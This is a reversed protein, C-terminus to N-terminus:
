DEPESTDSTPAATEANAPPTLGADWRAHIWARVGGQFWFYGIVVVSAGLGSVGFLVGGKLLSDVALGIIALSGALGAIEYLVGHDLLFAVGLAIVAVGAGLGAVGFLVKGELLSDVALGFGTVGFGLITM